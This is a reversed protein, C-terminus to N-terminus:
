THGIEGCIRCACPKTKPNDGRKRILCCKLLTKKFEEWSKAGNYGQIVQHMKWWTAVSKTLYQLAYQVEYKRAILNKRFHDEINQTWLEAEPQTMLGSFVLGDRWEDEIRELPKPTLYSLYLPICVMCVITKFLRTKNQPRRFFMLSAWLRWM